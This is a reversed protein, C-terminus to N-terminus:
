NSIALHIDGRLVIIVLIIVVAFLINDSPLWAMGFAARGPLAFDGGM